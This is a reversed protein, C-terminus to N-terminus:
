FCKVKKQYETSKLYLERQDKFIHRKIGEM